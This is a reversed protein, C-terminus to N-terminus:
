EVFLPDFGGEAWRVKVIPHKLLEIKLKIM